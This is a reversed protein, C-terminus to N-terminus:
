ISLLVISLVSLAIGIFTMRTMREKLVVACLLASLVLISGNNAPGGYNVSFLKNFFTQGTYCTVCLILLLLVLSRPM